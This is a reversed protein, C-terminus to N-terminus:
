AVWTGVGDFAHDIFSSERDDKAVADHAAMLLADGGIEYLREALDHIAQRVSARIPATIIDRARVEADTMAGLEAATILRLPGGRREDTKAADLLARLAGFIEATENM